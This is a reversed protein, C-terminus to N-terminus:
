SKSISYRDKWALISKEGSPSQYEYSTDAHAVQKISIRGGDGYVRSQIRGSAQPSNSMVFQFRGTPIQSVALM